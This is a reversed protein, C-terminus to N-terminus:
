KRIGTPLAIVLQIKAHLQTPAPGNDIVYIKTCIHAHVSTIVVEHEVGRVAGTTWFEGNTCTIM